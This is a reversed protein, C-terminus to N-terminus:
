ELVWLLGVALRGARQELRALASQVEADILQADTGDGRRPLQNIRRVDRDVIVPQGGVRQANTALRAAARLQAAADGPVARRMRRFRFVNGVEADIELAQGEGVKRV